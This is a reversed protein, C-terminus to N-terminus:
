RARRANHSRRWTRQRFAWMMCAMCTIPENVGQWVSKTYDYDDECWPRDYADGYYVFHVLHETATM